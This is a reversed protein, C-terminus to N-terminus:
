AGSMTHKKVKMETAFEREKTKWSGGFHRKACKGTQIFNIDLM